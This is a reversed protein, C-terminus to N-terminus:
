INEGDIWQSFRNCEATPGEIHRSFRGAEQTIPSNADQRNTKDKQRQVWVVQKQSTSIAPQKGYIKHLMKHHSACLTVAHEVVEHWHAQYFADRMALVDEDTELTIGQERCYTDLLLSLTTYHHFELDEATSCIECETGRKYNSKVGDRIWKTKVRNNAGGTNKAM